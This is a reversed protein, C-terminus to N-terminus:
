RRRQEDMAHAVVDNAHAMRLSQAIREVSRARADIRLEMRLRSM